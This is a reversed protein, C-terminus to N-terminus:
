PAPPRSGRVIAHRPLSEQLVEVEFGGARLEASIQDAHLRMEMPPGMGETPEKLFDVVVFTGGPKLAKFVLAAYAERAEIHHWTNLTVVADVSEPALLPDSPSAAHTRVNTWGERQAAEDLFQLMAPEIDLAIVQGEPGVAASLPPVLYGTGAGLDVVTDGAQLGLAAVIEEPRQWADRTPDNWEQAYASADAFHGPEHPGGGHHGGGHGEGHAHPHAAREPAATPAPAAPAESTPQTSRAACGSLLAVAPLLLLHCLRM